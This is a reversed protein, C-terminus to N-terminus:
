KISWQNNLHNKKSFFIMVRNLISIFRKDRYSDINYLNFTITRQEVKFYFYYTDKDSDWSDIFEFPDIASDLPLSDLDELGINILDKWLSIYERTNGHEEKVITEDKATFYTKRIMVNGNKCVVKYEIRTMVKKEGDISKILFSIGDHAAHVIKIESDKKIYDLNLDNGIIFSGM